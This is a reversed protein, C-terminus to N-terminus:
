RSTLKYCEDYDCNYFYREARQVLNDTSSALEIFQEPIVDETPKDYKKMRMKYVFTVMEAEQDKCQAEFPVTKFLDAEEAATMVNHQTLAHFAEGCFVDARLAERFAEISQARNELEELVYGKLVFM